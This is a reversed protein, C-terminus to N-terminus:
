GRLGMKYGKCFAKYALRTKVKLYQTGDEHLTYDLNESATDHEFQFKLDECM